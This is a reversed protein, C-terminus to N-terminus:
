FIVFLRAKKRDQGIWFNISKKIIVMRGRSPGAFQLNGTVQPFNAILCSCVSGRCKARQRIM